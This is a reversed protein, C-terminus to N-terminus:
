GGILRLLAAATEAPSPMELIQQSILESKQVLDERMLLSEILAADLEVWNTEIGAGLEVMARANLYQDAAGPVILQPVAAAAAALMSAQGGHHIVARSNTLLRDVPLWGFVSVNLPIEAQPDYEHGGLALLFSADIKALQTLLQRVIDDFGPAHPQVTGFTVVVRPRDPAIMVWGPLQMGGSYPIFRMQRTAPRQPLICRPMVDIIELDPPIGEPAYKEYVEPLHSKIATALDPGGTFGDMQEVVPIGLRSGVLAGCGQLSTHVVLDPRWNDALHCMAPAVAAAQQGFLSGALRNGEDLTATGASQRAEFERQWQSHAAFLARFDARPAVNVAQFGADVAVQLGGSSAFLVDCGAAAFARALPVVGLVHSASPAPTFLIRAPSTM